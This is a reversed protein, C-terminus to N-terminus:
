SETGMGFFPPVDRHHLTLRKNAALSNTGSAKNPDVNALLHAARDLMQQRDPLPLGAAERDAIFEDVQQEVSPMLAATDLRLVPRVDVRRVHEDKVRKAREEKERLREATEEATPDKPM